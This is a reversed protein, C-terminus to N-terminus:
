FPLLSWRFLITSILKLDLFLSPASELWLLQHVSRLLCLLFKFPLPFLLLLPLLLLPLSFSFSISDFPLLLSEFKFSLLLFSFLLLLKRCLLISRFHCVWYIDLGDLVFEFVRQVGVHFCSVHFVELRLSGKFFCLFCPIFCLFFLLFNNSLLLFIDLLCLLFSGFIEVVLLFYRFFFFLLSLLLKLGHLIIKFFFGLVQPLRKAPHDLSQLLIPLRDLGPKEFLVVALFEQIWDEATRDELREIVRFLVLAEIIVQQSIVELVPVFLIELLPLVQEQM